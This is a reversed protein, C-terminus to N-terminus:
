KFLHHWFTTTISVKFAGGAISVHKSRNKALTSNSVPAYNLLTQDFNMIFSPPINHEEVLNAIRHQFLLKAEMVAQDPIKPKDTTRMRRAFRMSRFLSQTWTSSILNICKLHKDGRKELLAQAIAIAFVSNLVGGKRRLILLFNKVKEDLSGLMLPRGRKM